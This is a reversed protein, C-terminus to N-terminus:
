FKLFGKLKDKLDDGLKDGLEGDLQKELEDQDKKRRIFVVRLNGLNRLPYLGMSIECERSGFFDIETKKWNLLNINKRRVYRGINDKLVITYKAEAAKLAAFVSNKSYGSDARFWREMDDPIKNFIKHIWKEADTGTWTNGSRLDFLYSLGYQDYCNQSDFGWIGKYNKALKEMKKGSQKHPTSDMSLIFQKDKILSMRLILATELLVDQIKSIQRKHFGKLFDGATRAALEGRLLENFLADSRLEELDDICDNGLAFSYLIGKIKSLQDIGRKKKKHPLLRRLRKDLNLYEWLNEFLVLGSHTSLVKTTSELLISQSKM